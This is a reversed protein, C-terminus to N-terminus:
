QTGVFGPGREKWAQGTRRHWQGTGEVWAQNSGGQGGLTWSGTGLIELDPGRFGERVIGEEV